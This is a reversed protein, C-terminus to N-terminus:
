IAMTDLILHDMAPTFTEYLSRSGGRESPGGAGPRARHVAPALGLLAKPTHDCRREGGRLVTDLCARRGCECPEGDIVAPTHAIDGGRGKAGACLQGDSIVACGIESALHV